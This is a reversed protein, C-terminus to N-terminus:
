PSDPAHLHAPSSSCTPQFAPYMIKPGQGLGPLTASSKIDVAWAAGAALPGPPSSRPSTPPSHGPPSYPQANPSSPLSTIPSLHISTTSVIQPFSSSSTPSTSLSL